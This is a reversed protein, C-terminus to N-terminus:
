WGFFPIMKIAFTESKKRDFPCDSLYEILFHCTASNSIRDGIFRTPMYAVRRVRKAIRKRANYRKYVHCQLVDWEKQEIIIIIRNSICTCSSKM